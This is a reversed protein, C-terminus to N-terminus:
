GGHDGAPADRLVGVQEARVQPDALGGGGTRRQDGHGGDEGGRDQQAHGGERQEVEQLLSALELALLSSSAHLSCPPGPCPPRAPPPSRIASRIAASAAIPRSGAPPM